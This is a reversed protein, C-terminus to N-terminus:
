TERWYFRWFLKRWEDNHNLSVYKTVMGESILNFYGFRWVTVVREKDIGAM